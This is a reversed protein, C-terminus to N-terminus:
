PSTDGLMSRLAAPNTCVLREDPDILLLWEAPTASLLEKGITEICPPKAILRGRAGFQRISALVAPQDTLVCVADLHRLSDLCTEHPEDGVILVVAAVTTM